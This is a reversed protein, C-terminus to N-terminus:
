TKEEFDYEEEYIYFVGTKFLLIIVVLVVLIITSLAILWPFEFSSHSNSESIYEFPNISGNIFSYVYDFKSDNNFDILCTGDTQVFIKTSVNTLTNYFSSIKDDQNDDFLFHNIEDINVDIKIDITNEFSNLVNKDEDKDNGVSVTVILPKSWTSLQMYRNKYRTRVYYIGPKNWSYKETVYDDSKGTQIWDTYNNDGWDFMWSAGSEITTMKYEYEINIFVSSYGSPSPPTNAIAKVDINFFCLFIVLSFIMIFFFTNIVRKKLNFRNKQM